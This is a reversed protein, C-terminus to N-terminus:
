DNVTLRDAIMGAFVTGLLGLVGTLLALVLGVEALPLHHSRVLFSPNFSFFAYSTLTNLSAGVVIYRFSRLSLLYRFASWVSYSRNGLDNSPALKPVRVTLLFLVALIIGPVGATIFAARWGYQEAVWGGFLFIILSGVNLGIIYVSLATTRKEPSVFRM